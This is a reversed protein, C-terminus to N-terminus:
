KNYLFEAYYEDFTISHKKIYTAINKGVYRYHWSEYQYGTIEEKDKPYRLIYGYKYANQQMWNFAETESFYNYDTKGDSIDISLGTQHESYGARASYKDAKERGDIKVYQNYLHKQYEYSRYSSIIVITINEKKAATAMKIFSDKADHVLYMGSRGYQSSIEELNNPIYNKDLYFYKNVLVYPKNLYLSKGTNTYFDYDLNLNVKIVAEKFSINYKNKYKIYRKLKKRSCYKYSLCEKKYTKNIANTNSILITLLFVTIITSRYVIKRVIDGIYFIVIVIM